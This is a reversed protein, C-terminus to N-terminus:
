KLLNKAIEFPMYVGQNLKGKTNTKYMCFYFGSVRKCTFSVPVTLKDDNTITSTADHLLKQFHRPDCEYDVWVTTSLLDTPIEIGEMM